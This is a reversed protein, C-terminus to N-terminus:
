IFAGVIDSSIARWEIHFLKIKSQICIWDAEMLGSRWFVFLGLGQWRMMRFCAMTM